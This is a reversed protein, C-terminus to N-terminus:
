NRLPRRSFTWGLGMELRNGMLVVSRLDQRSTKGDVFYLIDDGWNAVFRYCDAQVSVWLQSSVPYRIRLGTSFGLGRAKQIFSRPQALEPRLNWRGQARFRNFFHYALMGTLHASGVTLDSNLGVWPGSWRARYRSDLGDLLGRSGGGPIVQNGEQMRVIRHIGEYGIWLAVGNVSSVETLERYWGVAASTRSAATGTAKSVSRSFEGEAGYDSDRVRGGMIGGTEAEFAILWQQNDGSWLSVTARADVVMIVLGRFALESTRAPGDGVTWLLGSGHRAIGLNVDLPRQRDAMQASLGGLSLHFILTLSPVCIRIAKMRVGEGM